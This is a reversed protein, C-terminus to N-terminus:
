IVASRTYNGLCLCYNIKERLNEWSRDQKIEQLIGVMKDSKSVTEYHIQLFLALYSHILEFNRKTKLSESLTKLFYEMFLKSGGNEPGLCRIEVDIKSPNMEKLKDMVMDYNETGNCKYLLKYFESKHQMVDLINSKERKEKWNDSEEVLFTPKLGSVVPLFFPANKPVQVPEKPKNRRKIIDLDLLNLWRSKSVLSLTVLEDSIQEPSKFEPVLNDTEAEDDDKSNEDRGDMTVVPLDLQLPNYAEPLPHLLLNSYLTSNAWLYIGPSGAHVTALYEGSPSMTLSVCLPSVTFWDVLKGSSIDWTKISSDSTAAILWKFDTSFAMDCINGSNDAFNRIIRKSEIDVLLITFNDMAVALMANERHLVVKSVGQEVEMIAIESHDKFKWFKLLKDTGGSIVMQNFGDIAVGRVNGEHATEKGFSGRHMGSQINFKDLHGTNYGIVVFNGCTSISLCLAEVNKLGKFREHMIKHEGMCSRNYSWTTVIKSNRHIAAINDWDKERTAESCLDIIPLMKKTDHKIGKRKAAKRNFSAQGLSKNLNDAETSFSRLTSDRGASLINKGNVDYFRVKTPSSSHGERLRLLRGGDDPLDFIWMKISNDSSSTILLPENPLFKLGSVCGRHAERIESHLRKKELDWVAIHGMTSASAMIPPGDTRFSLGTVAGWDQSFKMLTEDFKLNHIYIDGCELGIAVVNIAPAQELVTVPSGWGDFTYILKNTRLNWLQLCGQLSGLLIKNLYTSPHVIASISITFPIELTIEEAKIDWVILTSDEYVAILHPGFPLLLLVNKIPGKYTHKLETGRRWAYIVNECATFVLYADSTLCSIEEPHPGSVSLLDLKSCGYTHFSKGVATVVLNENRRNIYRLSLPVHNCVFGLARYGVFIKSSQIM